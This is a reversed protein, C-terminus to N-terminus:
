SATRTCALANRVARCARQHDGCPRFARALPEFGDQAIMLQRREGGGLVPGLDQLPRLVDDTSQRARARPLAELGVVERDDGLLVDQAVAQDPAAAFRALGASKM